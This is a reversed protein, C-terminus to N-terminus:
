LKELSDRITDNVAHIKVVLEALEDMTKASKVSKLLKALDAAGNITDLKNDEMTELVKRIRAALRDRFFGLHEEKLAGQKWAPGFEHIATCEKEMFLLVMGVAANGRSFIRANQLLEDRRDADKETTKYGATGKSTVTEPISCSTITLLFLCLVIGFTTKYFMLDEQLRWIVVWAYM